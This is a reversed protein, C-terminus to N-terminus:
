KLEKFDEVNDDSLWEIGKKFWSKIFGEPKSNEAKKTEPKKYENQQLTELGLTCHTVLGIGTAFQPNKVEESLGKGLHESPYGIRADQGTVYEVLHNIHELKSGGGTLVIGGILQDKYGSSKIEFMIHEFIEEVRAQIIHALNKKSIEK